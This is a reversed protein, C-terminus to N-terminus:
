KRALRPFRPRSLCGSRMKFHICESLNVEAALAPFPHASVAPRFAQEVRYHDVSM